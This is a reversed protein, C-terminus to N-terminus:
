NCYPASIISDDIFVMERGTISRKGTPCSSSKALLCNSLTLAAVKKRESTEPNESEYAVPSETGKRKGM